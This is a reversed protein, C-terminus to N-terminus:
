VDKRATIIWAATNLQVGDSTQHDALVQRLNAFAQARQEDDLTETLGKVMGIQRVFAFADDADAGPIMPEDLPALAVDRLGADALLSRTRDPDSLSFPTPAQLPPVPLDRGLALAGRIAMLWENEQLARWAAFCITGGPKIATAINRFAAVPDDFFMVGMGSIALDFRGADFKHTQADARVFEVNLVGRAAARKAAVALMQSSLDVGLVSEVSPAVELALGGAGCGIDLVTDAAALPVARLYAANLRVAASDYRDAFEAWHEGEDGNWAAEMAENAMRVM